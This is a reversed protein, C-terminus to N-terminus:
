SASMLCTDVCGVTCIQWQGRLTIYVWNVANTDNVLHMRTMSWQTHNLSLLICEHWQGFANTDNVLSHSESEVTQMNTMSWIGLLCEYSMHRCVRSHMNTMSWPTHYLSLQSCEHWQGFANTDNVVSHSKFETSHMRTMSWICEHWQGILTIWVWCDAYKDNVLDRLPVWLVHTSM